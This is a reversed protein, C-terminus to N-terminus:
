KSIGRCKGCDNSHNYFPGHKIEFESWGDYDTGCKLCRWYMKLHKGCACKSIYLMTRPRLPVRYAETHPGKTVRCTEKKKLSGRKIRDVPEGRRLIKTGKQGWPELSKSGM